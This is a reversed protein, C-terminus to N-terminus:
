AVGVKRNLKGVQAVANGQSSYRGSVWRARQNAWPAGRIWGVVVAWSLWSGPNPFAIDAM